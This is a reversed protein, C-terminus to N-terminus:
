RCPRTTECRRRAVAHLMEGDGASFDLAKILPLALACLGTAARLGFGTPFLCRGFLLYQVSAPLGTSSSSTSLSSVDLAAGHLAQALATPTFHVRHRPLDLHFWCSAFRRAQRSAINPVSILVVGGPALAAAALRLAALPDNTHELSHRFVVADYAEPELSVSSLTGCRVAIGREAVVACAAPSPEIGSMTWGRASLAVALDGRGCGVDLGRGPPRDRLAALPASRLAIWGQCARIMRSALRELWSMRDGYPGYDDPYFQALQEDGVRPLTVGLGCGLCRAVEHEAGAGHLRDSGKITPPGLASRCVPCLSHQAAVTGEMAEPWSM